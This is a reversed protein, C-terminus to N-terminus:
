PPDCVDGLGDGDTDWQNSNWITPCNDDVDMIDDGDSDTNDPFAAIGTVNSINAPFPAVTAGTPDGESHTFDMRGGWPAALRDRNFRFARAGCSAGGVCGTLGPASPRYNFDYNDIDVFRLDNAPTVAFGMGGSCTGIAAGAKETTAASANALFSGITTVFGAGNVPCAIIAQNNLRTFANDTVFDTQSVTPLLNGMEIATAQQTSLAGDFTNNDIIMTNVNVTKGSSFGLSVMPYTSNTSDQCRTSINDQYVLAAPCIDITPDVGCATV